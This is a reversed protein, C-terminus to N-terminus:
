GARSYYRAWDMVIEPVVIDVNMRINNHSYLTAVVGHKHHYVYIGGPFNGCNQDRCVEWENNEGFTFFVNRTNTKM